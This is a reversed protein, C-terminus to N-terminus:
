LEKESILHYCQKKFLSDVINLNVMQHTFYVDRFSVTYYIHGEKQWTVKKILLDTNELHIKETIEKCTEEPNNTTLVLEIESKSDIKESGILVPSYEKYDRIYLICSNKFNKTFMKKELFGSFVLITALLLISNGIITGSHGWYIGWIIFFICAGMIFVQGEKRKHSRSSGFYLYGILLLAYCLWDLNQLTFTLHKM